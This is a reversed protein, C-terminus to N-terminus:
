TAKILNARANKLRILTNLAKYINKSVIIHYKIEYVIKMDKNYEDM